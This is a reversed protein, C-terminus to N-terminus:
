QQGGRRGRAGRAPPPWVVSQTTIKSYLKGNKFTAAKVTAPAKVKLPGTYKPSAATPDSGDTTVRIDQGAVETSLTLVTENLTPNAAAKVAVDFASKAYNIGLVDLRPFEGEMRRAFDAWNKSGAPSWLSESVAFIRPFTMYEAHSTTPVYEGWLNAQGGLIHRAQEPTLEAPTPDFTYVKSVPLNGGIGEPELRAPGQLYDIYVFTNPSMVVDHNAKAAAVGGAIGRWSMVTANPAVGGELIEDWGILRRGKENIHKEIRRIFYSQLEEPTKLGEDKMRKQCDPCTKWFAKNCEDGGIHIFQSPFLDMVEDLVNDLFEFTGDRGACWANEPTPGGTAVPLAKKSCLFEPYAALVARSHGPMEIEPVINIFRQRAYEVIKKIDEQTYFGGYTAKEGPQQPTVRNWNVGTRDAHWAAIETLKPYKKIEIRWGQDDVLHWHFSNMKNMALFDIYKYIFEKPMFHRSCDLMMGRWGYRPKDTIEVGPVMWGTIAVPTQGEIAPPLLQRLSQVGYFVGAPKNARIVIRDPTVSLQYGENGLDAPAGALTLEIDGAAAPAAADATPKIQWGSPKDIMDALYQGVFALDKDGAARVLIRSSPKLNFQGATFAIKEPAPIIPSAPANQAAARGGGFGAAFAALGLALTLLNHRM